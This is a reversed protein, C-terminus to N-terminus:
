YRNSNAGLCHRSDLFTHLNSEIFLLLSFLLIQVCKQGNGSCVCAPSASAIAMVSKHPLNLEVFV